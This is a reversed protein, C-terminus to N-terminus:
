LLDAGRGRCLAPHFYMALLRSAAALEAVRRANPLTIRMAGVLASGAGAQTARRFVWELESADQIELLVLKLGLKRASAEVAEIYPYTAGGTPGSGTYIVAVPKRSSALEKLMELRKGVVAYGQYARGTINGGPHALSQILGEGV